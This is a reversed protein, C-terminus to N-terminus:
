YKKENSYVQKEELEFKDRSDVTKKGACKRQILVRLKYLGFVIVHSLPGAVFVVIADFILPNKFGKSYDIVSYIYASDGQGLGGCIFYIITFLVYGLGYLIVQYVHFVRCPIATIFHDFFVFALNVAHTNTNIFTMAWGAFGLYLSLIM